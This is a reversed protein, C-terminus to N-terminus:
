ADPNDATTPQETQQETTPKPQPNDTILEIKPIEPTSETILITEARKKAESLQNLYQPTLDINTNIVQAPIIKSLLTSLLQSNKEPNEEIIKIAMNLLYGSKMELIRKVDNKFIDKTKSGKPRGIKKKIPEQNEEM